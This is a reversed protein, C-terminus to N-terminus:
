RTLQHLHGDPDRVLAETAANWVFRTAGVANAALPSHPRGRPKRYGLLELHPPTVSPKLPVVDVVVNDLGDLVTQAPGTNVTADNEVLGRRQYFRRSTDIDSVSIASHDIGLIGKGQWHPNAGVPFQLFELPHGEPDRFKIATVGGSSAPLTVPGKGRSILSAGAAHARDWAAAADDTVLALHQFVLDAPTSDEPYSIGRMDFDDLDLRSAGLTLRRRRGAGTLGLLRMEKPAIKDEEGIAFGLASYFPLLRPPELTVLRFGAIGRWSM